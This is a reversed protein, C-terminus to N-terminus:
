DAFGTQQFLKRLRQQLPRHVGLQRLMQAIFLVIRRSIVAPIGTVPCSGLRNLAIEPRHHHFRRSIAIAAELRLDQRLMLCPELAEVVLNQRHVRAAHRRTLDLAL